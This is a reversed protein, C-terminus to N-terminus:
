IVSTLHKPKKNENEYLGKDVMYILEGAENLRVTRYITIDSGNM